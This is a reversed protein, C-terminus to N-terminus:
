RGVGKGVVEGGGVTVLGGLRRNCSRNQRGTRRNQLLFFFTIKAKFTCIDKRSFHRDPYYNLIVAFCIRYGNWDDDQAESALLLIFVDSLVNIFYEVEQISPNRL